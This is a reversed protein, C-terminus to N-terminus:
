IILTIFSYETKFKLHFSSVRGSDIEQNTESLIISEAIFSFVQCTGTNRKSIRQLVKCGVPFPDTNLKPYLLPM